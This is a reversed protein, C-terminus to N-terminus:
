SASKSSLFCKKNDKDINFVMIAAQKIKTCIKLIRKYISLESSCCKNVKSRNLADKSLYFM